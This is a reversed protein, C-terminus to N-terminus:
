QKIIKQTFVEGGKRMELIYIGPAVTDLDKIIVINDGTQLTVTRKIVEQGNMNMLRVTSIEESASKVQLKINNTFPNPYTRIESVVPLGDLRLPLIQTFTSKGDIDVIRLRYYLIKSTV